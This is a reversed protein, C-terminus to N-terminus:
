REQPKGSANGELAAIRVCLGSLLPGVFLFDYRPNVWWAAWGASLVPVAVLGTAIVVGALLSWRGRRVREWEAYTRPRSMTFSLRWLALTGILFVAAVALVLRLETRSFGAASLYAISEAVAYLIAAIMGGEGLYCAFRVARSDAPRGWRFRSWLGDNM